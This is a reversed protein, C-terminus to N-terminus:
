QLTSQTLKVACYHNNGCITTGTAPDPSLTGFYISQAQAASSAGDVAFDTTGGLYGTGTATPLTSSSTLQTTVDWMTVVNSGLSDTAYNPDGMGVFIRDTTGDFFEEIPSCLGQQGSPNVNTNASMAPITNALGPPISTPDFSIAYLDQLTNTTPDTGCSYITSSANAPGNTLYNNDFTGLFLIPYSPFENAPGLPVVVASSLDVPLQTMSTQPTMEADAGSFMYVYGNFADLLPGSTLSGSGYAHTAKLKYGGLIPPNVSYAYLTVPDSVFVMNIASDYVTGSIAIPLHVTNVPICYDFTPTGLFVGTIHYLNGNDAGIFGTDSPYDVYLDSYNNAYPSTGCGPLLLSTYDIEDDCSQGAAPACLGNNMEHDIAVSGIAASVGEGAVYTTVHLMADGTSANEIWAVKTGDASIVPSLPSPGSGIAYSFLTTPATGCIGPGTGSYLNTIGVLNGQIGVAVRTTDITYVAFDSCNPQPGTLYTYKAPSEGIAMGAHHGLSYAWDVKSSKSKNLSVSDLPKAQRLQEQMKQRRVSNIFRPDDRVKVMDEFSGNRTYVVHRNSWDQPIGRPAMSPAPIPRADQAQLKGLCIGVVMLLAAACFAITQLCLLARRM